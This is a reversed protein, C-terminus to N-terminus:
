ARGVKTEMESLRELLREIKYELDDIKLKLAGVEESGGSTNSTSPSSVSSNFSDSFFSNMPNQSQQSSAQSFDNLFSFGGSENSSNSTPSSSPTPSQQTLDLFGGDFKYSEENEKKPIPKGERTKTFDVFNAGGRKSFLAM